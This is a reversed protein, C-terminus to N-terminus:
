LIEPHKDRIPDLGSLHGQNGEPRVFYTAKGKRTVGNASAIVFVHLACQHYPCSVRVRNSGVLITAAKTPACRSSLFNGILPPFRTNIARTVRIVTNPPMYRGSEEEGCAPFISPGEPM